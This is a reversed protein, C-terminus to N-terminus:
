RRKSNKWTQDAFQDTEFYRVTQERYSTWCTTPFTRYKKSSIQCGTGGGSLFIGNFKETVTFVVALGKAKGGLVAFVLERRIRKTKRIPNYLDTIFAFASKWKPTKRQLTYLVARKMAYKKDKNLGFFSYYLRLFAVRFIRDYVEVLEFNSQYFSLIVNTLLDSRYHSYSFLLVLAHTFWAKWVKEYSNICHCLHALNACPLIFVNCFCISM